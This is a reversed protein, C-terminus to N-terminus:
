NAPRSTPLPNHPLSIILVPRADPFLDNLETQILETPDGIQGAKIAVLYMYCKGPAVQDFSQSEVHWRTWGGLKDTLWQNLQEYRERTEAPQTAAGVPEPLRFVITSTLPVSEGDSSITISRIQRVEAYKQTVFSLGIQIERFKGVCWLTCLGALLAFVASLIFAPKLFKDM